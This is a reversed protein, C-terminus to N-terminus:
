AAAAADGKEVERCAVLPAATIREFQCAHCFVVDIGPFQRIVADATTVLRQCHGCKLYAASPENSRAALLASPDVMSVMM